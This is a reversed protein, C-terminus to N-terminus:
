IAKAQSTCSDVHHVGVVLVFNGFGPLGAFGVESGVLLVVGFVCFWGGESFIM